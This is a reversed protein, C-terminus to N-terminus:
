SRHGCSGRWSKCCSSASTRWCGEMIPARHQRWSFSDPITHVGVHIWCTVRWKLSRRPVAERQWLCWAAVVTKQTFLLGIRYPKRPPAFAMRYVTFMAKVTVWNGSLEFNWATKDISSISIFSDSIIVDSELVQINTKWVQIRTYIYCTM